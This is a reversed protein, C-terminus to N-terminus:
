RNDQAAAGGVGRLLRAMMEQRTGAKALERQQRETLRTATAANQAPDMSMLRAALSDATSSNIGQGRRYLTSLGQSVAGTVGGGRAANLLSMVLPGNPDTAMDDMGAQLRATQSGARPSIAANTSATRMERQLAAVLGDRQAQDPLLTELRARM